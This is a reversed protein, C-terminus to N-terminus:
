EVLDWCESDNEKVAPAISQCGNMGRMKLLANHANWTGTPVAPAVGGKPSIAVWIRSAASPLLELRANRSKLGAGGPLGAAEGLSGFNGDDLGQWHFRRM